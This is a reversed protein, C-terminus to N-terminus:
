MTILAFTEGATLFHSVLSATTIHSEVGVPHPAITPGLGKSASIPFEKDLEGLDWTSCLLVQCKSDVVAYGHVAAPFVLRLEVV